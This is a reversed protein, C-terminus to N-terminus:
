SAELMLASAATDILLLRRRILRGGCKEIPNLLRYFVETIHRAALPSTDGTGIFLGDPTQGGDDGIRELTLRLTAFANDNKADNV